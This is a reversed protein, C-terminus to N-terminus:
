DLYNSNQVKDKYANPPSVLGAVVVLLLLLTILCKSRYGELMWFLIMTHNQILKRSSGYCIVM